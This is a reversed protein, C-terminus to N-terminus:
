CRSLSRVEVFVVAVAVRTLASFSEDESGHLGLLLTVGLNDVVLPFSLRPLNSNRLETSRALLAEKQYRKLFAVIQRMQQRNRLARQPIQAPSFQRANRNPYRYM